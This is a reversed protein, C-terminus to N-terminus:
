ANLDQFSEAAIKWADAERVLELTRGTRRAYSDSEVSQEFRVAFRGPAVETQSIPGLTLEMGALPPLWAHPEDGSEEGGDEDARAPEFERSYFSLYDEVRRESWAAAWARVTEEIAQPGVPDDATVPETKEELVASLAADSDAGDGNGPTVPKRILGLRAAARRAAGVLRAAGTPAQPRGVDPVTVPAEDGVEAELGMPEKSEEVAPPAQEELAAVPEASLVKLEATPPGTPAEAEDVAVPEAPAVEVSSTAEDVLSPESGAEVTETPTEEPVAPPPEVTEADEAEVEELGHELSSWAETIRDLRDALGARAATLREVKADLGSGVEAVEALRAALDAGLEQAASLDGNFRTRMEEAAGRMRGLRATERALRGELGDRTARLEQAQERLVAEVEAGAALREEMEDRAGGVESLRQRLEAEAGAAESLREELGSQEASKHELQARLEAETADWERRSEASEQRLSELRGEAEEARETQRESDDRAQEAQEQWARLEAEREEAQELSQRLEAETEAAREIRRELEAETAGARDLGEQLEAERASGRELDARLDAELASGRELDTRLDAELASGRELDARLDTERASGRELDARLDTERASGRELDARLDAELTQWEERRQEAEEHSRALKDELDDDQQLTELERGLDLAETEARARAEEAEDRSSELTRNEERLAEAEVDLRAVREEAEDRASELEGLRSELEEQRRGLRAEREESAAAASALAAAVAAATSPSDSASRPDAPEPLAEALAFPEAEDSVNLVSGHDRSPEAPEDAEAAGEAEDRGREGVLRKVMKQSTLDLKLFRVGMGSPRDQGKRRRRTWVVEATGQFLSFDEGLQFQFVFQSGPPLPRHARIFMGSPSLNESVEEVFEDFLKFRIEIPPAGPKLKAVAKEAAAAAGRQPGTLRRFVFQKLLEFEQEGLGTFRLGLMFNSPRGFDAKRDINVVEASVEIRTEPLNGEAEVVFHLGELATGLALEQECLLAAGGAGLTWITGQRWEEEGAVLYEAELPIRLRPHKRREKIM